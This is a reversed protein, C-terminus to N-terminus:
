TKRGGLAVNEPRRKCIILVRIGQEDITRELADLHLPNALQPLDFGWLVDANQLLRGRAQCIRHVTEKLTYGGSEGSLVCTRVREPVTFEPHSLFPTGTGLSVALDILTGTKLCKKPGGIIAPQGEVLIRKVLFHRRFNAAFFESSTMLELEYRPKSENTEGSGPLLESREVRIARPLDSEDFVHALLSSGDDAILWADLGNALRLMAGPELPKGKDRAERQLELLGDFHERGPKGIARKADQWGHGSCSNHLCKFSLRGAPEQMICADPSKHESNFPCESLIYKTRNSSAEGVTFSIGRDRLWDGVRLREEFTGGVPSDHAHLGHTDDRPQSPEPVLAAVSQLQELRM